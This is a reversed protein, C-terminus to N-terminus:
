PSDRFIAYGTTEQAIKALRHCKEVTEDLFRLTEPKELWAQWAAADREDLTMYQPFSALWEGRWAFLGDKSM